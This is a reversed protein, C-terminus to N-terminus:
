TNAGTTHTGLGQPNHAVHEAYAWLRRWTYVVAIVGVLIGGAAATLPEFPVELQRTM